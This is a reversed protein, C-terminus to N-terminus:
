KDLNATGRGASAVVLAVVLLADPKAPQTLSLEVLRPMNDNDM